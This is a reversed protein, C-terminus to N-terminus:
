YIQAVFVCGCINQLQNKKEERNKKQSIVLKWKGRKESVKFVIRVMPIRKSLATGTALTLGCGVAYYM